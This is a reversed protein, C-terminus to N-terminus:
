GGPNNVVVRGVSYPPDQVHAPPTPSVVVKHVPLSIPRPLPAPYGALKDQVRGQRM